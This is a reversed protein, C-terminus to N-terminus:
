PNRSQKELWEEVEVKELENLAFDACLQKGGAGYYLEEVEAHCKDCEMHQVHLNQCDKGICPYGDTACDCCEDTYYIM